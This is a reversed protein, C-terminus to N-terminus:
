RKIWKVLLVPWLVIAGPMLLLKLWISSEKVDRDLKAAEKFAFTFSFFFGIILYAAFLYILVKAFIM